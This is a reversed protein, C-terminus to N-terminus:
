KEMSKSMKEMYDKFILGEPDMDAFDKSIRFKRMRKNYKSELESYQANENKMFLMHCALVSSLYIGGRSIYRRLRQWKLFGAPNTKTIALNVAVGFLFTLGFKTAQSQITNQFKASDKPEMFDKLELFTFVSLDPLQDAFGALNKKYHARLEHEEAQERSSRQM